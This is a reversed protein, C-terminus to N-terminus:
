SLHRSQGHHQGQLHKDTAAEHITEGKLDVYVTSGVSVLVM